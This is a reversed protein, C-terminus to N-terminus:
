WGTRVSEDAVAANQDCDDAEVVMAVLTQAGHPYKDQQQEEPRIGKM